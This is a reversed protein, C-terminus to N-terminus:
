PPNVGPLGTTFIFASDKDCCSSFCTTGVGKLPILTSFSSTTVQADHPDHRHPSASAARDPEAESGERESGSEKLHQAAELSKRHMGAGVSLAGTMVIAPNDKV